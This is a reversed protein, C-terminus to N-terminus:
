TCVSKLNENLQEPTLESQVSFALLILWKSIMHIMQRTILEIHKAM